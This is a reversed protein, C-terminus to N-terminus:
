EVPVLYLTHLWQEIDQEVLEERREFRSVVDQLLDDFSQGAYKRTRPQSQEMEEEVETIIVKAVPRAQDAYRKKELLENLISVQKEKLQIMRNNYYSNSQSIFNKARKLELIRAELFLLESIKEKKELQLM